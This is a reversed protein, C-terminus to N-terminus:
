RLPEAPKRNAVEHKELAAKVEPNDRVAMLGQSAGYWLSRDAPNELVAILFAIAKANNKEAARQLAFVASSKLIDHKDHHLLIDLVEAHGYAAAIGLADPAFSSLPRVRLSRKLAELAKANGKGAQEGLIDYAARMLSLNSMVRRREKEHDIDQYLKKAADRLEDLAVEDGGAIRAALDRMAQKAADLSADSAPSAPKVAPTAVVTAPPPQEAPKRNAAEYKELAAKVKPNDRAAVLAQAAEHWYTRDSPNDLIALFFEIAQANKKEAAARLEFTASSRLIGYQDHHLLIQVAEAHGLAAAIGLAHAGLSNLPKRGLSLKIADLAKANGKSAQEGFLDYAAQMISTNTMLRKRDNEYDLNEYLKRAADRLEDFAKPDGGIVRTALDRMTQKAAEIAPDPALPNSVVVPAPRPPQLVAPIWDKVTHERAIAPAKPTVWIRLPKLPIDTLTERPVRVDIWRGLIKLVGGASDMNASYSKDGRRRFTLSYSVFFPNKKKTTRTGIGEAVSLRIGERLSSAGISVGPTYIMEPSPADNAFSSGPLPLDTTHIFRIYLFVSDSVLQVSWNLDGTPVVEIKSWDEGGEIFPATDPPLWFAKALDDPAHDQVRTLHIKWQDEELLFFDFYYNPVGRSDKLTYHVGATRTRVAVSSVDPAYSRGPPLRSWLTKQEETMRDLSEKSHMELALKGNGAKVAAHFKRFAERIAAERAQADELSAAPAGLKRDHEIEDRKESLATHSYVLRMCADEMTKGHLFLRITAAEPNPKSTTFSWDCKFVPKLAFCEEWSPDSNPHSDLDVVPEGYKAVLTKRFQRLQHLPRQDRYLQFDVFGHCFRDNVFCLFWWTAPKGLYSGKRLSLSALVGNEQKELVRQRDSLVIKRANEISAGWRVGIFDDLTAAHSPLSVGSLCLLLLTAISDRTKM